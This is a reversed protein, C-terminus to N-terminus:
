SPPQLRLLMRLSGDAEDIQRFGVREYLRRAYNDREVSLSLSALNQERAAAVLEGLLRAGVGRGRWPQVVGMSLEPAAADVFGYGPASEPFLRVWAAGVPQHGNLAIVGLDGPRPWGVVYHALKPEALVEAVSGSPGDPRWFAAAVLM